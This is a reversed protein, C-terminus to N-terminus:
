MQDAAGITESLGILHYDDEIFPQFLAPLYSVLCLAALLVLAAPRRTL